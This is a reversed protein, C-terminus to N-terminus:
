RGASRNEPLDFMGVVTVAHGTGGASNPYDYNGTVFGCFNARSEQGLDGSSGAAIFRYIHESDSMLLGNAVHGGTAPKEAHIEVVEGASCMRKGIQDSSDKRVKAFTTEDATVYVDSWRMRRAGWLAFLASGGSDAAVTDAMGSKAFIFAGLATMTDMKILATKTPDPDETPAPQTTPVTTELPSTAATKASRSSILWIAAPVFVCVLIAVANWKQSAGSKTTPAVAQPQAFAAYNPAAAPRGCGPCSPAVDSVQRGCDPCTLLAM